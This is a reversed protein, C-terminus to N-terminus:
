AALSVNVHVIEEFFDVELDDHVGVFRRAALCFFAMEAEADVRFTDVEVAVPVGVPALGLELTGFSPTAGRGEGLRLRADEAVKDVGELGGCEQGDMGSRFCHESGVGVGGLQWIEVCVVHGSHEAFEIGLQVFVERLIKVFDIKSGVNLLILFDTFKRRFRSEFNLNKFKTNPIAFARESRRTALERVEGAASTHVPDILVEFKRVSEHEHFVFNFFTKILYYFVDLIM